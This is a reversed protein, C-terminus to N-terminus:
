LGNDAYHRLLYYLDARINKTRKFIANEKQIEQLFLLPKIPTTKILFLSRFCYSNIDTKGVKRM